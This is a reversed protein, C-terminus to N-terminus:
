KLGLTTMMQEYVTWALAAMLTRRMTRPVVGRLFGVSGDKQYVHMVVQRFSSFKDPYLQMHTKVVDAPQTVIAAFCGAIIGSSFHVLPNQSDIVDSQKVIKKVQTYCMLYLGSFPADRLLTASLGSYLGKSGEVKYIAVLAQTVGKYNYFGSEFRTKIVTFPLTSLGSVSRAGAGMCMSELPSPDNSGLNTKMWHLSSFYVGIGPVTRSLSPVIGKWLGVLKENRVVTYVVALLGSGRQGLAVPSQIRTKVLDLPQFLITSCTGSLSGAVFSKVLPSNLYSEIMKDLTETKKPKGQLWLM